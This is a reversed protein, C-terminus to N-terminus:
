NAKKKFVRLYLYGSIILLAVAGVIIFISTFLATPPVDVIQSTNSNINNSASGMSSLTYPNKESGDGGTLSIASNLHVVPRISFSNYYIAGYNQYVYQPNLGQNSASFVQENNGYVPTILLYNYDTFKYADDPILYNSKFCNNKVNPYCYTAYKKFMEPTDDALKNECNYSNYRSDENIYEGNDNVLSLSGCKNTNTTAELIDTLTAMAVNGNWTYKSEEENNKKVIDNVKTFYSEYTPKLEEMKAQYKEMENRYYESTPNEELYKKNSEYFNKAGLYGRVSNDYESDELSVGGINYDYKIIQGRATTSLKNYYESNLYNNIDSNDEVKGKLDLSYFSGNSFNNTKAWANCGFQAYDCYRDGTPAKQDFDFTARDDLTNERIIKLSGDKEISMVRWLEDNFKIFNNPNAGKYVYRGDTVEDKYIGDGETVVKAKLTEFATGAALVPSIMGFSLSILSLFLLFKRM